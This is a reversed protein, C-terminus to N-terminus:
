SGIVKAEWRILYAAHTLSQGYLKEGCALEATPAHCFHLTACPYGLPHPHHEFMSNARACTCLFHVIGCQRLMPAPHMSLVHM